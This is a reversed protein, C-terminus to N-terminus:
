MALERSDACPVRTRTNDSRSYRDDGICCVRSMTFTMNMPPGCWLLANFPMHMLQSGEM